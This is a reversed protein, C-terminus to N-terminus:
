KSFVTQLLPAKSLNLPPLIAIQSGTGASSRRLTVEASNFVSFGLVFIDRFVMCFGLQYELCNHVYPSFFFRAKFVFILRVFALSSYLYCCDSLLQSSSSSLICGKMTTQAIYTKLNPGLSYFQHGMISIIKRTPSDKCEKYYIVSM